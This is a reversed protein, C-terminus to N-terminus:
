VVSKQATIQYTVGSFREPGPAKGFATRITRRPLLLAAM